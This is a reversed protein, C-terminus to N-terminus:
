GIAALYRRDPEYLRYERPQVMGLVLGIVRGGSQQLNRVSDAVAEVSSHGWRACHIIGDVQAALVLPDMLAQAPPSDILVLDYRDRTWDLFAKMRGNSLLETSAVTPTGAMVVDYGYKTKRVVDGYAASDRLIEVLGPGEALGLSNRFGPQRLDGEVVLVRQGTAASFQAMALTLFSKGEGPNASTMLVTRPRAPGGLLITRTYLSRVAEQLASPSAMQPQVARAYGKRLGRVYPIHGLVRVGIGAELRRATRVSSDSRDRLVVAATALVVGAVLAAMGFLSLKPAVIRTPVEAYNVLQVDGTLLRQQAALDNAKKSLDIYLERKVDTDRVMSAIQTQALDGVGVDHKIDDLEKALSDVQATASAYDREVSIRIRDTEDAIRRQLDARQQQLAVVEPRNAGYISDARALNVGVESLKMKLDGITRSELTARVDSAGNRIQQLKAEIDSKAAQAAALQQSVQTLRESAISATQGRVLGHDRKFNEIEIESSRLESSLRKLESEIWAEAEARSRRKDDSAQGLYTYILSNVLSAAAQPSASPYSIQIVRSRGASGVMLHDSLWDLAGSGALQQNCDRPPRIRALLRAVATHPGAAECDERLAAMVEPQQVMAKLVRPSKAVMIQSDMDAPDGLKAEVAPSDVGSVQARDASVIVAGTARYTPPEVYYLLVISGAVLTFVSAFLLKRRRLRTLLGAEDDVSIFAADNLKASM